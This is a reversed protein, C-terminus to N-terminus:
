ALHEAQENNEPYHGRADYYGEELAYFMANIAVKRDDDREMAEINNKQIFFLVLFIGVFVICLVIELVTFGNKRKM